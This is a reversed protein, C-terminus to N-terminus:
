RTRVNALASRLLQMWQPAVDIVNQQIWSAIPSSSKGISHREVM